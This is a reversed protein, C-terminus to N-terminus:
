YKMIKIHCSYKICYDTLLLLMPWLICVTIGKEEVTGGCVALYVSWGSGRVEGFEGGLEQDPGKVTGEGECNLSSPRPRDRAPWRAACSM